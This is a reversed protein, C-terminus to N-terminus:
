VQRTDRMAGIVAALAGVTVAGSADALWDNLSCIRGVFTQLYEDIAGYVFCIAIVWWAAARLSVGMQRLSVLLLTALLAYSAFHWVTDSVRTKPVRSPPLHTAIFLGVWYIATASWVVIRVLTNREIM